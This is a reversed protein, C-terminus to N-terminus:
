QNDAETDANFDPAQPYLELVPGLAKKLPTLWQQYNQWQDVGSTYIPQRVQESSATRVPRRNEFFRLCEPEFPLGCYELVKRTEAETDGVTHEYLVRHIRGPLVQDYHAMLGVYDYYFRGMDALTYSFSQGRAYYQKFNSFCCGLPHRRADIIRANPLILHIMGIHLFNNPMKDIFFPRDTKRHIRTDEIYREGLERLQQSSMGALVEDYAVDDDDTVNAQERLDKAISIIDPLETTGEVQSHSSLIQELLTSGSRPMGVIFIPATTAHGSGTRDNFFDRTFTTKLRRARATNLDADYRSEANQLANGREYHHFSRQYEGADEYAKGLAFHLQLRDAPELHKNDLQRHMAALDEASFRFTKLNALSWYAEGFAAHRAISQRYADICETQRGETKLVHGYSLWVKANAPYEALLQQYIQSSRQYEGIRSLIVACLNRYSPSQPESELLKEVEQLADAPNNRRHLLVAYNYRAASFSPALELCRLLLKEAAENEGCRVAVEALMRIAPVDTPAIKLHSKLLREARPVDEEVMAAAAQQLTPHRTSAQIHRAYAADGRLSDGTAMMHDALQRWAEPHDPKLDVTKQLVQIAEDGRGAAALVLGYQYHAAAWNPQAAVLERLQRIALELEGAQQHATALLLLAPPYKPVANLIETAQEAALAPDRDLLRTAHALAADLSGSPDTM